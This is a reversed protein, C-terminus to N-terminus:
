TWWILVQLTEFDIKNPNDTRRAKALAEKMAQKIVDAEQNEAKDQPSEVPLAAVTQAPQQLENWYFDIKNCVKVRLQQWYVQQMKTFQKNQTEHATVLFPIQEQLIIKEVINQNRPM